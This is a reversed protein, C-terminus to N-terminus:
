WEVRQRTAQRGMAARETRIDENREVDFQSPRWEAAYGRWTFAEGGRLHKRVYIESDADRRSQRWHDVVWGRLAERRGQPGKDREALLARVGSADTAFRFSPGGPEGISVSWEYRHRLALGIALECKKHSLETDDRILHRVVDHHRTTTANANAYVWRGGIFCFYETAAVTRGDAHLDIAKYTMMKPAIMRTKGRVDRPTSSHACLFIWTGDDRRMVLSSQFPWLVDPTADSLIFWDDGEILHTADIHRMSDITPRNKNPVLNMASGREMGVLAVLSDVIESIPRAM